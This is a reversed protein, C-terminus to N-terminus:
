TMKSVASAVARENEQLFQEFERLWNHLGADVSVQGGALPIVASPGTAIMAGENTCIDSELTLQQGNSQVDITIAIEDDAVHRRLALYGRLLFAENATRGLDSVLRPNTAALRHAFIKLIAHLRLWLADAISNM